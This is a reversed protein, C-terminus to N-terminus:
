PATAIISNFAAPNDNDGFTFNTTDVEIPGATETTATSSYQSVVFATFDQTAAPQMPTPAPTDRYDSGSCGSLCITVVGLLPIIRNM